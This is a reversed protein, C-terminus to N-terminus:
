TSNFCLPLSGIESEKMSSAQPWTRGSLSFQSGPETCLFIQLVYLRVVSILSASHMGAPVGVAYSKQRASLGTPWDGLYPHDSWESLGTFWGLMQNQLVLCSLFAGYLGRFEEALFRRVQQLSPWAATGLKHQHLARVISSCLPPVRLSALGAWLCGSDFRRSSGALCFLCM